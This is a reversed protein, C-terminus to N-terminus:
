KRFGVNDVWRKNDYDYYYNGTFNESRGRPDKFICYYEVLSASDHTVDDLLKPHPIGTYTLEARPYEIHKFTVDQDDLKVKGKLSKTFANLQGKNKIAWGTSKICMRKAVEVEQEVEESYEENSPIFFLLYIILLLINGGVILKIKRETRLWTKFHHIFSDTKEGITNPM